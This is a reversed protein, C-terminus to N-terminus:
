RENGKMSTRHLMETEYLIKTWLDLMCYQLSTVIWVFDTDMMKKAALLGNFDCYVPAM